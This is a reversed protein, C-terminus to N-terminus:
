LFKPGGALVMTSLARQHNLVSSTPEITPPDMPPGLPAWSLGPFGLLAWFLGPSGLLAWSLGHSGLLVWSLGPEKRKGYNRRRTSNMQQNWFTSYEVNGM